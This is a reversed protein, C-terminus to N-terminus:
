DNDLDFGFVNTALDGVGYAYRIARNIESDRQGRDSPNIEYNKNAFAANANPNGGIAHSLGTTIMNDTLLTKIGVFEAVQGSVRVPDSRFHDLRQIIFSAGNTMVTRMLDTYTNRWNEAGAVFAGFGALHPNHRAFSAIYSAPHRVLLIAKARNAVDPDAMMKRYWNAHKSTDLITQAGTQKEIVDYLASPKTARRLDSVFSNTFIPCDQRLLDCCDCLTEQLPFLNEGLQSVRDIEGLNFTRDQDTLARAFVTSGCFPTGLVFLVKAKTM